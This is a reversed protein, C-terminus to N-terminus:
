DGSILRTKDRTLIQLEEPPPFARGLTLSLLQAEPVQEVM